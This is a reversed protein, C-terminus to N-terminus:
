TNELFKCSKHMLKCSQFNLTCEIRPDKKRFTAKQFFRSYIFAWGIQKFLASQNQFKGSNEIKVTM